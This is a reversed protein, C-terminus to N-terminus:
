SMGEGYKMNSIKEAIRKLRYYNDETQSYYWNSAAHINSGGKAAQSDIDPLKVAMRELYKRM